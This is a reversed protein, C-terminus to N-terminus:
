ISEEIGFERKLFELTRADRLKCVVPQKAFIGQFRRAQDRQYTKNWKIGVVWESMEPNDANEKMGMQTLPLNFLSQTGVRFEKAMVVEQTVTGFGVYGHGKLYAFIQDGVNLKKLADSYLKGQGASLFGYKMCDDWNRHPGEGVNVYWFGSWTPMRRSDSREEVEEPDMLWSRGILEEGNHQFCSFFVVNIDLSCESSLYQVIRESSDDLESAVVLLRHSANINDPITKGFRDMFAEPFPKKLYSAAIAEVDKPNLGNVWSAYDLVQAIIDRPTRDKKLEIVLLDGEQDIALLDIRGGFQTRVQRGIILVEMGLLGVDREIWTELRDESDLRQKPLELPREDHVAWLTMTFPM